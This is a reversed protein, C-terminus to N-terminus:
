NKIIKKTINGKENSINILYIGKTLSIPVEFSGNINNNESSYIIKGLLDTVKINANDINQPSYISIYNSVPNQISINELKNKNKNLLVVTLLELTTNSDNINLLSVVADTKISRFIPELSQFNDGYYSYTTQTVTGVNNIVSYNLSINLVTKLRTVNGSFAFNGTDNLNLTGYADVTTVLTGTFTGAYTTYTYNGSVTDSNSYGFNMPFLGLTANNTAFNFVLDDTSIGTISTIGAVDKTYIYGVTNTSGINSDNVIVSTTGPYTTLESSTPQIFNRTSNGISTLDTFNWIQNTGTASHDLPNVSSVIEFTTENVGSFNLIPNQAFSLFSISFLVLLLKTKM